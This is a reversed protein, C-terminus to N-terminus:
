ATRRLQRVLELIEETPKEAYVAKYKHFAAGMKHGKAVADGMWRALSKARDINGERRKAAFKVLKVNVVDPATLEPKAIGCLDCITADGEITVGCGICHRFPNVSLKSRIADGDLHYDRDDDPAGFDHSSGHLDLILAKSKGPSLRLARGVIQLYLSLSGLARALIVCSTPPHDWGETLIGVNILVRIEDREYRELTQRRLGADMTGTVVAAKIGAALFEDCHKEAAKINGSFVAAKQGPAHELYADVPSQAITGSSLKGPPAIMEYPCLYGQAILERMSIPSVMADYVEGLGVGDARMPTATFGIVVASRQKYELSIPSWKESVQHHCNHVVYGNAVYTHHEEVELNYVYGDPCLGGYRGDVGPELVEVRDVRELGLLEGEKPGAGKAGSYLSIARGTGCGVHSGSNRRRDQLSDGARTCVLEHSGSVGTSLERGPQPAGEANGSSCLAYAERQGGSREAQSRDKESDGENKRTNRRRAYPQAGEVNARSPLGTPRVECENADDNSVVAQKSMRSQLDKTKGRSNSGSLCRLISKGKLLAAEVYGEGPVYFPHGPTCVVGNVRVLQSPKSKFVHTVRREVLETGTWASVSDGVRLTEIPRGDVLTGAPFCEDDIKLTIGEVVSARSILTQTSAVQVPRHPNIIRSSGAAIVGCELGHGTFTDFLQDILETRHATVLAKAGPVKVLHRKIIEAQIVSKGGGTSLVFCVARAGKRLEDGIM